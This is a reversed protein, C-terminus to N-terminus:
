ESRCVATAATEPVIEHPAHLGFGTRTDNGNRLQM